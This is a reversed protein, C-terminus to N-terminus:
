GVAVVVLTLDDQLNGDAHGLVATSVTSELEGATKRRHEVILGELRDEGFQEGGANAAESVGDTFLVLRDGPELSIEGTTYGLDRMLRAFAPGGESLRVSTGDRRVLVPQNHGCNAYSLRRSDGDVVALFFTVFRGGSLNSTVVSRVQTCVKAPDADGIAVAKVAAQLSSMLLAAPMGKGVVDGICVALRKEDLRLVDYYDGSVERAPQWRAVVDVGDIQPIESPLLSKQIQLAQAFELEARRGRLRGVGVALQGVVAELYVEDEDDFPERSLKRGLTILGLAEDGRRGIVAREAGTQKFFRGEEETWEERGKVVHVGARRLIPSGTKLTLGSIATEPLGVTAEVALHDSAARRVLVAVSRCRLTRQLEEAIALTMAEMSVSEAVTTAVRAVSAETDRERQFFFRDVLRQIRNRVPVFLAVVLLTAVVTAAQSELGASRVLALGSVGALILYVVVVFGTVSTYIVTKRIILDIDM